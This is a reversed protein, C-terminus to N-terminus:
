RVTLTGKMAEHGVVTCHYTYTGPGLDVVVRRGKGPAVDVSVHEDITFTHRVPDHNSVHVAAGGAALELQRPQFGINRATVQVDGAKAPEDTSSVTAVVCVVLSVVAVAAAGALSRSAVASPLGALIGVLSLLMLLGSVLIVVAVVFAVGGGPHALEPLSHPASGLLYVIGAVALLVPRGIRRLRVAIALAAVVVTVITLPPIFQQAIVLQVVVACIVDAFAAILLVRQWATPPSDVGRTEAQSARMNLTTM